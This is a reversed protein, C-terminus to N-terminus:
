YGEKIVMKRQSKDKPVLVTCSGYQTARSRRGLTAEFGISRRGYIFEVEIKEPELVLIRKWYVRIQLPGSVVFIVGVIVVLSSVVLSSGSSRNSLAALLDPICRSLPWIGVVFSFCGMVAFFTRVKKSPRYTHTSELM